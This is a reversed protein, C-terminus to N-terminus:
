KKLHTQSVIQHSLKRDRIKFDDDTIDPMESYKADLRAKIATFNHVSLKASSNVKPIFHDRKIPNPSM